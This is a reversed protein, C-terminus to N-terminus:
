LGFVDRANEHYIKAATEEDIAPNDTVWTPSDLTGHPWDSSFMFTDEARCLDLMAEAMRPQQPLSIPQTSVYFNEFLYESPQKELYDMGEEFLGATFRVDEPHTQYAEDGRYALFPLWTVGAEQMVISLDPYRSFVGGAILNLATVMAASSWEVAISVLYSELGDDLVGRNHWGSGHLCFPLDLAELREFIPDHEAGSLPKNFGYWGQAGVFGDEDGVRDLEAAAFEPDWHPVGVLGYVGEDHDVVEELLYDNYARVLENKVTPYRGVAVSLLLNANVLVADVGMRERAEVIEETSAARGVAEARNTADVSYGPYWDRTHGAPPGHKEVIDRVADSEVYTLLRDLDVSNHFDVDVVYHDAVKEEITQPAERSM